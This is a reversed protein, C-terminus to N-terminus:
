TEPKFGELNTLALHYLPKIGIITTILLVKIPKYIEPFPLRAAAPSANPVCGNKLITKEPPTNLFKPVIMEEASEKLTKSHAERNPTHVARIMAQDCFINFSLSSIVAKTWPMFDIIIAM